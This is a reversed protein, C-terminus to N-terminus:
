EIEKKNTLYSYFNYRNYREAFIKSMKWGLTSGIIISCILNIILALWGFIFLSIGLCIFWYVGYINAVKWHRAKMDELSKMESLYYSICLNVGIFCIVVFLIWWWINSLLEM